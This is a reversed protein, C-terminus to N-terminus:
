NDLNRVASRLEEMVAANPCNKLIPIWTISNNYLPNIASRIEEVHSTWGGLGTGSEVLTFNFRALNSM